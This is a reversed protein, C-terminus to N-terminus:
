CRYDGANTSSSENHLDWEDRVARNRGWRGRYRSGCGRGSRRWDRLWASCAEDVGKACSRAKVDVVIMVRDAVVGVAVQIGWDRGIVVDGLTEGGQGAGLCVFGRELLVGVGGIEGCDHGVRAKGGRELLVVDAPLAGDVAADGDVGVVEGEDVLAEVVGRGCAGVSEAAVRVVADIEEKATTTGEAAEVPGSRIGRLGDQRNLPM